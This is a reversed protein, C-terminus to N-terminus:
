LNVGLARNLEKGVRGPRQERYSTQEQEASCRPPLRRRVRLVLGVYAGIGILADALHLSVLDGRTDRHRLSQDLRACTRTTQRTLTVIVKTDLAMSPRSPAHRVIVIVYAFAKTCVIIGPFAELIM